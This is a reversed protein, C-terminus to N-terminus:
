QQKSRELKEQYGDRIENSRQYTYTGDREPEVSPDYNPNPIPMPADTDALWTDLMARLRKVQEPKTQALDHQEYPDTDLDFLHHTVRADNYYRYLKLGKHRVASFPSCGVGSYHPFHFYLPRDEITKGETLIPKLSVGDLHQQPNPAVGALDLMTPYLDINMTPTDNTKGAPIRGPWTMILPVRYGGEYPMAKSGLLPYTSTTSHLGGNDSTFILVTNQWVGNKKLSAVIRGVSDDM